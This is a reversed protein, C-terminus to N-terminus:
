EDDEDSRVWTTVRRRTGGFIAGIVSGPDAAGGLAVALATWAALVAFAVAGVITGARMAGTPHQEVRVEGEAVRALLFGPGASYRAASEPTLTAFYSAERWLLWGASPTTVTAGDEAGNALALERPAATAGDLLWLFLRHYLEREEASQKARLHAILNMGSWVVRGSGYSGAAIIPTGGALLVPRAWERLAGAPVSMDWTGDGYAFDGFKALDLKSVDVTGSGFSLAPANGLSKWRLETAPLWDPAPTAIAFRSFEWGTEVFLRGGGSVYARLKAESAVPDRECQDELIVVDFVRLDDASVDDVCPPGSVLWGDAFPLGGASVVRYTNRYTQNKPQGVHLVVGRSRFAALTRAQPSRATVLGGHTTDVRWGADAFRTADDLGLSPDAKPLSVADIGFWANMENLDAGAVGYANPEFLAQTEDAWSQHLLSLTFTYLAMTRADSSLPLGKLAGGLRPSVDGRGALGALQASVLPQTAETTVTASIGPPLKALKGALMTQQALMAPLRARLFAPDEAHRPGYGPGELAVLAGIAAIAVATRSVRGPGFSALRELGAAALVALGVIAYILFGRFGFLPSLVAVSTALVIELQLSFLYALAFVTTLTLAVGRRSTVFLAGGVL